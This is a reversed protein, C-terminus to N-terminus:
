KVYAMKLLDFLKVTNEPNGEFPSGSNDRKYWTGERNHGEHSCVGPRLRQMEGKGLVRRLVGWRKKFSAVKRHPIEIVLEHWLVVVIIIAVRTTSSAFQNTAIPTRTCEMRFADIRRYAIIHALMGILPETIIALSRSSSKALMFAWIVTGKTLKKLVDLLLVRDRKTERLIDSLQEFVNLCSNISLILLRNGWLGLLYRSM